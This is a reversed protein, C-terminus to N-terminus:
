VGRMMELFEDPMMVGKKRNCPSCSIVINSLDHRGGKSIPIVHDTEYVECSQGCWHCIKDQAALWKRLESDTIGNACKARRRRMAERLIERYREPNDKRWKMSREIAIEKQIPNREKWSKTYESAKARNNSVWKMKSAYLCSKCWSAYGDRKSKDKYFM